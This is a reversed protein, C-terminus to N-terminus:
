NGFPQEDNDISKFYGLLLLRVQEYSVPKVLHLDFGADHSAIVTKEDGWGSVSVLLPQASKGGRITRALDYGSVKPMGIDSFVVHPSHTSMVDLAATASFATCTDYGMMELLTSFVHALDENDDVVLVRGSRRPIM